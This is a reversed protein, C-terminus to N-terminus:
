LKGDIVRVVGVIYENSIEMPRAYAALLREYEAQFAEFICATCMNSAQILMSTKMQIWPLKKRSNYKADLEKLESAQLWEKLILSFRAIDLDCKLVDKMDKNLSESLQTSWM